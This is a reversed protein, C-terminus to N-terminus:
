KPVAKGSRKARAERRTYEEGILRRVADSITEGTQSVIGDLVAREPENMLVTVLIRRRMDIPEKRLAYYKVCVSASTM